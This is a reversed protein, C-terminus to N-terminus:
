IEFQDYFYKVNLKFIMLALSRAYCEYGEIIFKSWKLGLWTNHHNDNDIIM